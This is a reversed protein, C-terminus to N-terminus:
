FSFNNWIRKFGLIFNPVGLNFIKTSSTEYYWVKFFNKKKDITVLHIAQAHELHFMYFKSVNWVLSYGAFDVWDTLDVFSGYCSSPPTHHPPHVYPLIKMVWVLLYFNQLSFLADKKM